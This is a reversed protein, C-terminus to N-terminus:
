ISVAVSYFLRDDKKTLLQEVLWLTATSLIAILFRVGLENPLIAYGLKILVAIMPPHDFYGWDLFRSYVWYYAEDDFLGTVASQILNLLLWVSYFLLKHYKGIHLGPHM